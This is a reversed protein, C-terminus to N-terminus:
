KDHVPTPDVIEEPDGEIISEEIMMLPTPLKPALGYVVARGGIGLGSRGNFCLLKLV